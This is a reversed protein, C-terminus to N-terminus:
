QPVRSWIRGDLLEIAAGFAEHVADIVGPFSPHYDHGGFWGGPRVKSQWIRITESVAAYSHGADIFIFDAWADPVLQAATSSKMWLIRAPVDPHRALIERCRAKLQPRRGLDVVTMEIGDALLKELLLGSGLGIKIGRRWGRARALAAMTARQRDKRM